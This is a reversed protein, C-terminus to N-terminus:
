KYYYLNKLGDHRLPAVTFAVTTPEIRVGPFYLTTNVVIAKSVDMFIYWIILFFTLYIVYLIYNLLLCQLGPTLVSLEGSEASNQVRQKLAALCLNHTRNRYSFILHDLIKM